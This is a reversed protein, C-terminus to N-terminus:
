PTFRAKLAADLAAPFEPLATNLWYPAPRHWFPHYLVIGNKNCAAGVVSFSSHSMVFLDSTAFAHLTDTPSENICLQVNPLQFDELHLDDPTIIVPAEIRNTIGHTDPSVTTPKTPAETHVKIVYNSTYTPLLSNLLKIVQVYYTNPLMRWSDVVFLEGRRVHINIQFPHTPAHPTAYLEPAFRYMDPTREIIPRSLGAQILIPTHTTTAEHKYQLIHQLTLESVKVTRLPSPLSSPLICHDNPTFFANFAREVEEDDEVNNELHALGKYGIHTIPFHVYQLRLARAICYLNMIRHLQAGGGDSPSNDYGIYLSM